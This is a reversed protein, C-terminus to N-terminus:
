SFAMLMWGGADPCHWSPTRFANAKITTMLNASFDLVTVTYPMIDMLAKARRRLSRLAGFHLSATLQSCTGEPLSMNIYIYIYMHNYIYIYICIYM